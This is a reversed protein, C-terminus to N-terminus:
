SSATTRRLMVRTRRTSSPSTSSPPRARRALTPSSRASTSSSTTSSPAPRLPLSPPLLLMRLPSSTSSTLSPSAPTPPLPPSTTRLRATPPLLLDATPPHGLTPSLSRCPTQMMVDDAAAEVGNYRLSSECMRVASVWAKREIEGEVEVEVLGGWTPHRVIVDLGQEVNGRVLRGVMERRLKEMEDGSLTRALLQRRGGHLAEIHAKVKAFLEYDRRYLHTYLLAAWERLACAVEDVLPEEAGGVTEDGCKLSPLPPNPRDDEGARREGTAGHTSARSRNAFSSLSAVSSRNRVKSPTGNTPSALPGGTLEEAEDEEQLPGLKHERPGGVVISPVEPLSYPLRREADELQERIQVHSAPFIGISVQPEESLPAANSSPFPDSSSSSPPLRPHPSTSVVYGRYWTGSDVPSSPGSPPRFVEFVYVEDGVELSIQLHLSTLQPERGTLHAPFSLAIWCLQSCCSQRGTWGSCSGREWRTCRVDLAPDWCGLLLSELGGM